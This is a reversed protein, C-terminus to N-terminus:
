EERTLVAWYYLVTGDIEYPEWRRIWYCESNREALDYGAPCQSSLLLYQGAQQGGRETWSNWVDGYRSRRMPQLLARVELSATEGRLTVPSGYRAILGAIVGDM